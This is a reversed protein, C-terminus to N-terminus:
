WNGTWRGGPLCSTASHGGGLGTGLLHLACWTIVFPLYLFSYLFAAGLDQEEEAPAMLSLTPLFLPREGPM